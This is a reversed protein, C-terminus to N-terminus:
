WRVIKTPQRAPANQLAQAIATWAPKPTLARGFPLPRSPLGDNRSAEPGVEGRVIWSHRDSLGWTVLVKVAPEDLATELFRRYEDAICRDRESILAPAFEDTSDLETIQIQFGMAAVEALFRRLKVQSFPFHSAVLHAEIGLGDIPIGAAKTRELLKLVAGRKADQEPTDYELDYENIVLTVEPDATRAARYAIDFYEPGLKDVFLTTRLNDQRGHEVYIPENVVDWCFVRGRYRSVMDTIHHVVAAETSKRDPLMKFWDPVCFYWLLNHGRVALQFRGAFDMMRDPVLFDEEGPRHSISWWKMENEPVICECERLVLATFDDQAAIQAASICSGYSIGKARALEKLPPTASGTAACVSLTLLPSLAAPLLDRRSMPLKIRGTM